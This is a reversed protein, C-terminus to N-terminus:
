DTSEAEDHDCGSFAFVSVLLVVLWPWWVAAVFLWFRGNEYIAQSAFGCDKLSEGAFHAVASSVAILGLGGGVLAIGAVARAGKKCQKIADVLSAIFLYATLIYLMVITGELVQLRAIAASKGPWFFTGNGVYVAIIYLALGVPAVIRWTIRLSRGETGSFRLRGCYWIMGVGVVTGMIMTWWSIDDLRRAIGCWLHNGLVGDKGTAIESSKLLWLVSLSAVHSVIIWAPGRQYWKKGSDLLGRRALWDVAFILSTGITIAIICSVTASM